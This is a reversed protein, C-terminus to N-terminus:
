PNTVRCRGYLYDVMLYFRVLARFAQRHRLRKCRLVYQAKLSCSRPALSSLPHQLRKEACATGEKRYECWNLALLIARVYAFDMPSDPRHVRHPKSM